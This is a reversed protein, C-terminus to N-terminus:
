FSTQGHVEQNYGHEPGEQGPGGTSIPQAHFYNSPVRTGRWFLLVEDTVWCRVLGEMGLAMEKEMELENQHTHTHTNVLKNM